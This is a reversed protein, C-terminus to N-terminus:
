SDALAEALRERFREPAHERRVYAQGAHRMAALTAPADVLELVTEALEEATFGDLIRGGGSSRLLEEPGGCPTSVVPVGAAMAEAAVLGFGEQRSPLVFLTADRVHDAVSDVYGTAEVGERPPGAPARGVLRVRAEPSRARILPLADLLLDVNKRPDDARGVFVLTPRQTAVLWEDEPLPTFADLDIPIHLVQVDDRGAAENVVDASAASIAYLRDARQLVDRELRRLVPLSLSAAARHGASLGPARGNWETEIATGIWGSYPRGTRPAAAGNAATTAVVWLSQSDRARRALRRAARLQYLAEIRSRLAPQEGLGPHPEYLLEPRRDLASAGDLFASTLAWGGGGFRPDQGLVALDIM